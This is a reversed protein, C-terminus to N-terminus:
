NNFSLFQETKNAAGVPRAAFRKLSVVPSSAFVMWRKNSNLGASSVIKTRSRSFGNSASIIMM